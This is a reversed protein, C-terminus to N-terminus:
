KEFRKIFQLNVNMKAEIIEILEVDDRNLSGTLILFTAYISAAVIFFLIIAGVRGLNPFSISYVVGAFIVALVGSFIYKLYPILEVKLNILKRVLIFSYAERGIFSVATAVAAGVIGMSPILTINLLINMTVTALNLWFVTKNKDFSILTEATPGVIINVFYAIALIMLAVSGTLFESGFLTAIVTNPFLVFVVLVPFSLLFIWRSMSQYLKGEKKAEGKIVMQAIIPYFVRSFSALFIGMGAALPLAVNYIGVDYPSGFFGLFFTDAWLMVNIFIASLFLPFSFNIRKYLEFTCPVKDRLFNFIRTELIFYGFLVSCFLSFLHVLSIHLISGSFFIVISTTILLFFDKGLVKTYLDRKHDKFALMTQSIVRAYILLPIAFAFVNLIPAFEPTHFIHTAIQHSFSVLLVILFVSTISSFIITGWFSGKLRTIDKKENFQALHKILGVDLGLLATLYGINMVMDALSLLGYDNPGLYRSVIIRYIFRIIYMLFIGLFVISAGKVLEQQVSKKKSSM